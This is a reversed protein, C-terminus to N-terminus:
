YVNRGIALSSSNSISKNNAVKQKLVYFVALLQTKDYYKDLIFINFVHKITNKPM